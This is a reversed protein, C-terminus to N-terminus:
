TKASGFDEKADPRDWSSKELAQVDDLIAKIRQGSTRKAEEQLTWTRQFEKLMFPELTTKRAERYDYIVVDELCRASPRQRAESLIMVDLMISDTNDTPMSRLKHFVSIRDPWTMPFKFDVTISKLILGTGKSSLSEFWQKRHSPDVYTGLNRIWNCRGSEAFRVYQVNNVHGMSDMQGWVVAQRYLGRRGKETLYGESGVLLDRWEKALLQLISSARTLQAPSLGFTICKGVRTRVNSLWRPDIPPHDDMVQTSISKKFHLSRASFLRRPRIALSWPVVKAMLLYRHYTRASRGINIANRAASINMPPPFKVM